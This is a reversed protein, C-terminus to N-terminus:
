SGGAFFQLAYALRIETTIEGNHYHFCKGRNCQCIQDNQIYESIGHKLLEHLRHFVVFDMRCAKHFLYGYEVKM